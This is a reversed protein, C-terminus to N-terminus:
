RRLVKRLFDSPTMAPLPSRGFDRLNRTVIFDAGGSIAAAVQLADEFDRLPLSLARRVAESGGSAVVAFRLLDAIFGRAGADARSPRLLYYLNSLSHWAVLAAHPTEQCWQIVRDSDAAFPERHLATDLLVDADLLLKM